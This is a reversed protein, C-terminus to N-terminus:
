GDYREPAGDRNAWFTDHLERIIGLPIPPQGPHHRHFESESRRALADRDGKVILDRCADCAAWGETSNFAGASGRLSFDRCPFSWGVSTSSCFDCIESSM